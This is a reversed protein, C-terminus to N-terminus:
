KTFRNLIKKHQPYKELLTQRDAMEFDEYEFGPSTTCGYLGFSTKDKLEAAFWTNNKITVQPYEGHEIDTGLCVIDLSGNASLMYLILPSGTYYHWIEDGHLKHFVSYEEKDLLYFISTALHRDGAFAEPLCSKDIMSNTRYTERFYGGEPHRELGLKEIWYRGDKIM